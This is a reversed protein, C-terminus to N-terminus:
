VTNLRIEEKGNMFSYRFVHRSPHLPIFTHCTHGSLSHEITWPLQELMVKTFMPKGHQTVMTCQDCDLTICSNHFSEKSHKLIYSLETVGGEFVTSFYRPILTRGIAAPLCLSVHGPDARWCFLVLWPILRLSSSRISSFRVITWGRGVNDRQQSAETLCSSRLAGCRWPIIQGTQKTTTLGAPVGVASGLLEDVRRAAACLCNAWSPMRLPLLLLCSAQSHAPM